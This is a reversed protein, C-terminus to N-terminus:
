FGFSIAVRPRSHYGCSSPYYGYDNYYYRSRVPAYYYNRYSYDRYARYHHRSHYRRPAYYGGNYGYFQSKHVYVVGRGNYVRAFQGADANPALAALGAFMLLALLLKKM